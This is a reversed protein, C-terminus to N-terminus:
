YLPNLILQMENYNDSSTKKNNDNNNNNNNDNDNDNNDDDHNIDIKYKNFLSEYQSTDEEDYWSIIFGRQMYKYIRKIHDMYKYFSDIDACNAHEHFNISRRDFIDNWHLAHVTFTDFYIRNFTFDSGKIFNLPTCNVIVLDISLEHYKLKIVGSLNDYMDYDEKWYDDVTMASDVTLDCGFMGAINKAVKIASNKDVIKKNRSIDTIFNEFEKRFKKKDKDRDTFFVHESYCKKLISENIYIDIDSKWNENLVTQLIFSGSIYGGLKRLTRIFDFYDNYRYCFISQLKRHIKNILHNIDLDKKRHDTFLEYVGYFEFEEILHDIAQDNMVSNYFEQKVAHYNKNIFAKYDDQSFISVLEDYKKAFTIAKENVIDSLKVTPNNYIMLIKDFNEYESNIIIHDNKVVVGITGNLYHNWLINLYATKIPFNNIKDISLEYSKNNVLFKIMKHYKIKSKFTM